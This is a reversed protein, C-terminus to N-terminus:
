VCAKYNDLIEDFIEESDLIDIAKDIDCNDADIISISIHFPIANKFEEWSEFDALSISKKFERAYGDIGWLHVVPPLVPVPEEKYRATIDEPVDISPQPFFWDEEDHFAAENSNHVITMQDMNFGQCSRWSMQADSFDYLNRM